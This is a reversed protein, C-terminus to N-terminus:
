AVYRSYDSHIRNCKVYTKILIIEKKNSNKYLKTLIDLKQLVVVVAVVFLEQPTCRYYIKYYIYDIKYIDGLLIQKKVMVMIM